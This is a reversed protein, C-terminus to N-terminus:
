KKFKLLNEYLAIGEYAEAFNSKENKYISLYFDIWPNNKKLNIKLEQLEFFKRYRKSPALRFVRLGDNGIQIRGKEFELRLSFEFYKKKSGSEITVIIDNKKLVHFSLIELSNKTEWYSYLIEPFGVYWLILDILHIGDELLPDHFISKAFVKGELSLFEGFTKRDIIEKVKRYYNHYRREFNIYIQIEQTQYLKKIEEIERTSYAIPKEVMFKTKGKKLFFTLIEKHSKPGTTIVILDAEKYPLNQYSTTTYIKNDGWWDLFKQIKEPNRDCVAILDFHTDLAKITGAHTCPHYRRDDHELQWGIRGLGILITKQKM